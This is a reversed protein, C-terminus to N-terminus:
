NFGQSMQFIPLLIAFVLFAVFGGMCMIILPDLLSVLADVTLEVDDDYTDATKLLMKELEGSRQGLEIMHILMPPFFGSDKLPTALPQGRRVAAKVDEILEEMVKNQLVSSVVELAKLMTLGSGLMTGLTRSFRGCIMKLYLAGLLPFKLKIDDWQRRGNPRAVWYRWLIFTIVGAIILAWWYNRLFNSSGILIKTLRPLEMKQKLFIATIKPVVAAMLLIVMGVGFVIMLAPYVLMAVVKSKLKVQREQLDALRFLVQELAGSSEGAGVMNVHLKSFVRPHAAMGNALTKGGNVRDRVDFITKKLRPNSTQELLASLAGVVPMGAELLVALQRTMMAVDRASVRGFLVGSGAQGEKATAKSFSEDVATPYLQQDRLKRRAAAPTDADIVGKTAKGAQTMAHYEYVPM